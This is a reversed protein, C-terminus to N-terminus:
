GKAQLLRYKEVVTHIIAKASYRENILENLNYALKELLLPNNILSLMAEALLGPEKPPVLLAHEGDQLISPIEGVATSVLPLKCLGYEVLALPFGEWDSPLVAMQCKKMIPGPYDQPGLWFVRETLGEKAITNLVTEQWSDKFGHGVLYLYCNDVSACVKSFAQLLNMHGKEERLNALCVINFADDNKISASADGEPGDAFSFNPLFSIKSPKVKLFQIDAQVLNQSVAFVHDFFPVFAKVPSKRTNHIGKGYHDHWVLKFSMLPRLVAPFYFSSSHAHIIDIKEEKLIKRFSLFASLDLTKKKNLFYLKVGKAVRKELIGTQRSIILISTIGPEESLANAMNVAVMEAGGPRLSDIIQAVVLKDGPM